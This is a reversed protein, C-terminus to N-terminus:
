ISSVISDTYEILKSEDIMENPKSQRLLHRLFDKLEDAEIFGSKDKDFRKWIEVKRNQKLDNQERRFEISM